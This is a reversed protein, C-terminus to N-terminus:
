GSLGQGSPADVPGEAPAAAIAAEGSLEAPEAIPEVAAPLVQTAGADIAVAPAPAAPTRFLRAHHRIVVFQSYIVWCFLLTFLLAALDFILLLRSKLTQLRAQLAVIEAQIEQVGTQVEALRTDIRTTLTTLTDAAEQTMQDAQGEAVARLTGRLQRADASMEGLRNFTTDLKEVAPARERVFPISNAISVANSVSVLADRVPAIAEQINDVTPGLRTELRESLAMLVPNNAQLNGAIATITEEAQQVETRGTTILTDVRAVGSDVIGVGTEVVSFVKLTVNSAVSNLWWAGVIGGISLVIFLVALIIILVRGIKKLM